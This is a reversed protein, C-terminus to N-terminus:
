VLVVYHLSSFYLRYMVFIYIEKPENYIGKPNVVTVTSFHNTYTIKLDLRM